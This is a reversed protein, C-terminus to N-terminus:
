EDRGSAKKRNELRGKMRKKALFLYMIIRLILLIVICAIAVTRLFKLRKIHTTKEEVNVELFKNLNKINPLEKKFKEAVELKYSKKDDSLIRTLEHNMGSSGGANHAVLLNNYVFLEIACHYRQNIIIINAYVMLLVFLVLVVISALRM